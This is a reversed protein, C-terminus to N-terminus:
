VATHTRQKPYNERPLCSQAYAVAWDASWEHDAPKIMKAQKTEKDIEILGTFPLTHDSILYEYLVTKDNEEKKRYIRM